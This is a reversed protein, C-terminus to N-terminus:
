KKDKLPNCKYPRDKEDNCTYTVKNIITDNEISLIDYNNILKNNYLTFIIKGKEYTTTTQLIAKSDNIENFEVGIKEGYTSLDVFLFILGLLSLFLAFLSVVTNFKTVSSSRKFSKKLKKLFLIINNM